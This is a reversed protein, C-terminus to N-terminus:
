LRVTQAHAMDIRAALQAAVFLSSTQPALASIMQPLEARQLRDLAVMRLPNLLAVAVGLLLLIIFWKQM